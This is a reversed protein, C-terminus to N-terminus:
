PITTSGEFAKWCEHEVQHCSKCLLEFNSMENNDRNHDIHHVCWHWREADILDTNCRECYRRDEKVKKAITKFFKIGNKYCPSYKGKPQNGGRGIDVRDLRGEREAKRRRSAQAKRRNKVKRCPDTNCFTQNTGTPVYYNNCINCEKKEM